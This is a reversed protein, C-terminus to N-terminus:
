AGILNRRLAFHVLEARTELGLKRHINARHTEITRRSLHLKRAIEVSTYGLAIARLVETERPSLGDGNVTRRLAELGAAVHPSVYEEGRSARRVAEPLEIDARDKLVFGVAGADIARQAFAPSREMTLVVIETKPVHERLRRIAEISSGGPMQLDLVLVHPAHGHVHRVVSGISEAEGVVDLDDEGDLLLRLSRRVLAHDDALVVRIRAEDPDILVAGGPLPALHLHPSM